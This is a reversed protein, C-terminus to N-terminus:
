KIVLPYHFAKAASKIPALDQDLYKLASLNIFITPKTLKVMSLKGPSVGQLIQAALKAGEIGIDKESVGVAFSAGQQVTGDDSTILPIKRKKTLQVLTNIGSAVLSDKLIFVAETDQPIAQSASYLDSLNQIMLSHLKIHRHKCATEVQAAEPFIKDSSSYVLSINKLKPYVKHIFAIIKEKDIEDNVVALNDKKETVDAALGLISQNSIMATTMQVVSTAIPVVLDYNADHMQSIIARQLNIDGQANGVKFKIPGSYLVKLTEQFGESIELLAKHEIPMIIGIKKISPKFTSPAGYCVVCGALIYYFCILLLKNFLSNM